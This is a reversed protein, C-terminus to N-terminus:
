ATRRSVARHHHRALQIGARSELPQVGQRAGRTASRLPQGSGAAAHDRLRAGLACRSVPRLVQGRGRPLVAPRGVGHGGPGACDVEPLGRAGPHALVAGVDPFLGLLLHVSDADDAHLEARVAGQPSAGPYREPRYRVGVHLVSHHGRYSRPRDETPSYRHHYRDTAPNM